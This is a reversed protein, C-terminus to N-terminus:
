SYQSYDVEPDNKDSKKRNKLIPEEELTVNESNNSFNTEYLESSNVNIISNTSCPITTANCFRKVNINHPFSFNKNNYDLIANGYPYLIQEAEKCTLFGNENTQCYCYDCTNIHNVLQEYYIHSNKAQIIDVPPKTICTKNIKNYFAITLTIFTNYDIFRKLCSIKKNYDNNLIVTGKKIKLYDIYDLSVDAKSFVRKNM